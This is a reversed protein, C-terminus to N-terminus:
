SLAAQPDSAYSVRTTQSAKPVNTPCHILFDEVDGCNTRELGCYEIYGLGSLVMTQRFDPFIRKGGLM